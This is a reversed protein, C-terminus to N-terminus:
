KNEEDLAGIANAFPATQNVFDRRDGLSNVLDRVTEWPVKGSGYVEAATSERLVGAPSTAHTLLTVHLQQTDGEEGDECPPTPSASSPKRTTVLTPEAELILRLVGLEAAAEGALQLARELKETVAKLSKTPDTVM